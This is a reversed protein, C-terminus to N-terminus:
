PKPSPVPVSASPQNSWAAQNQSFCKDLPSFHCHAIVDFSFDDDDRARAAPEALRGGPKEGRLARANHQTRPADIADLRQCVLQGPLPPLASATGVSTVSAVLHLSQDICGHLGVPADVDHDVVGPQHRVRRELAELDVVPVPHDVHVDLAHQVADGRRQRVHLLLFGPVIM